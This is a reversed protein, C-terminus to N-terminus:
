PWRGGKRGEGELRGPGMAVSVDVEPGVAGRAVGSWALWAQGRLAQAEQRRSGTVSLM